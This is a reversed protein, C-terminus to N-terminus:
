QPWWKNNSKRRPRFDLEVGRKETYSFDFEENPLIPFSSIENNSCAPCKETPLRSKDFYTACWHCIECLIFIDEVSGYRKTQTKTNALVINTFAQSYLRLVIYLFYTWKRNHSSGQISPLQLFFKLYFYQFLDIGSKCICDGEGVQLYCANV